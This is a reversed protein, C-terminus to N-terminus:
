FEGCHRDLKLNFGGAVGGTRAFEDHGVSFDFRWDEHGYSRKTRDFANRLIDQLFEADLNQKAIGVMKIQTGSDFGNALHAAQVAEHRPISGNEGVGAAELNETEVIQALDAFFAYGEARM